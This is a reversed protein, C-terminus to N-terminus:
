ISEIAILGAEIMWEYLAQGSGKSILVALEHDAKIAAEAKQFLAGGKLPEPIEQDDLWDSALVTNDYDFPLSRFYYVRDDYLRPSPWRELCKLALESEKRVLACLM